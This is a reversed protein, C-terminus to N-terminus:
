RANRLMWVVFPFIGLPVSVEHWLNFRYTARSVETFSGRFGLFYHGAVVKGAFAFGGLMVLPLVCVGVNLGAAIALWKLWRDSRRGEIM